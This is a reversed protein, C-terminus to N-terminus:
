RIITKPYFGLFFQALIVAVLSQNISFDLVLDTKTYVGETLMKTKIRVKSIENGICINWTADIVALFALATETSYVTFIM